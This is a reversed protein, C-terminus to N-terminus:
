PTTIVTFPRESVMRYLICRVSNHSATGKTEGGVILESCLAIRLDAGTRFISVFNADSPSMDIVPVQEYNISLHM